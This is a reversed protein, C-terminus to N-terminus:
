RLYAKAQSEARKQRSKQLGHWAHWAWGKQYGRREGLLRVEDYNRCRELQAYLSSPQHAKVDIEELLGDKHIPGSREKVEFPTGCCVCVLAAIPSIGLCEPCIRTTAPKTGKKRDALDWQREENPLGHREINGAHDLIIAPYEKPRLCRGCQQLHLALSKTPRVLGVVDITVPVGAQSALDYGEGFLACNTLIEIEGNAFQKAALIREDTPTEGDVHRAKYGKSRFDAALRKSYAVNVCFYVARMGKAHDTYHKVVDGTIVSKDVAEGLQRQNYEGAVIEVEDLDPKSPAFARFECLYGMEILKAASPGQVMAQFPPGLGRGDLRQPTATLGVHVCEPGLWMWIHEWGTARVHHAEDWFVLNPKEQLRHLRSRLTDVSCIMTPFKEAPRGAALFGHPIETDTFTGSTQHILFDRHCLFWARSGKRLAGHALAAAIVTKGGGTPLVALVAKHGARLVTRIDDVLTQQYPRLTLM